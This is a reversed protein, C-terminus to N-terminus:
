PAATLLLSKSKSQSWSTSPKHPFHTAHIDINNNSNKRIPTSTIREKSQSCSTSTLLQLHLHGTLSLPHCPPPPSAERARPQQHRKTGRTRSLQSKNEDKPIQIQWYKMVFILTVFILFICCPFRTTTGRQCEAAAPAEQHRQTGSWRKIPWGEWGPRGVKREFLEEWVSLTSMCVNRNNTEPFFQPSIPTKTKPSPLSLPPEKSGIGLFLHWFLSLM